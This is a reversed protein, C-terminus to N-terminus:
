KAQVGVWLPRTQSDSVNGKKEGHLNRGLGSGVKVRKGVTQKIGMWTDKSLCPTPVQSRDKMYTAIAVEFSRFSCEIADEKVEVYPTTVKTMVIMDTKTAVIILSEGM